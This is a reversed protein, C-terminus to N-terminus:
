CACKAESIALTILRTAFHKMSPWSRTAGNLLFETKWYIEPDSLNLQNVNKTGDDGESVVRVGDESKANQARMWNQMERNAANGPEAAARYTSIANGFPIGLKFKEWGESRYRLFARVRGQPATVRLWDPRCRGLESFVARAHRYPLPYREYNTAISRVADLVRNM